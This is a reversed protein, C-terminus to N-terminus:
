GGKLHYARLVDLLASTRLLRGERNLHYEANVFLSRELCLPYDRGWFVGLPKAVDEHLRYLQGANSKCITDPISTPVYVVEFGKQKIETLFRTYMTISSADELLMEVGRERESFVAGERDLHYVYDGFKNFGDKRYLTNRELSKNTASYWLDKIALQYFYGGCYLNKVSVDELLFLADCFTKSEQQVRVIMSYEPSVVIIDKAPRLLHEYLQWINKYGIGAHIGLNVVTFGLSNSLDEASVSWGLSSGGLLIVRRPDTATRQLMQRGLEVGNLYHQEYYFSQPFLVNMGAGTLWLLSLVTAFRLLHKKGM